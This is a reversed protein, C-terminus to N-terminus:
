RGVRGRRGGGGGQQIFHPQPPPASYQGYGGGMMQGYGQQQPPPYGGAMGPPPQQVMPNGQRYPDQQYQLHQPGPSATGYGAGPSNYFGAPRPVQQHQQAILAQQYQLQQQSIPSIGATSMAPSHTYQPTMLGNPAYPDYSTSDMSITRQLGHGGMAPDMQQHQQPAMAPYPPRPYGNQNTDLQSLHGSMARNKSNSRSDHSVPTSGHRTSLGVEDM